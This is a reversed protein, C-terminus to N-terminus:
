QYNYSYIFLYVKKIKYQNYMEKKKKVEQCGIANEGFLGGIELDNVTRELDNFYYTLAFYPSNDKRLMLLLAGDTVQIWPFPM